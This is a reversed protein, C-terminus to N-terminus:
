VTTILTRFGRYLVEAFLVSAMGFADGLLVATAFGPPGDHSM